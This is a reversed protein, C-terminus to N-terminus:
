KGDAAQVVVNSSDKGCGWGQGLGGEKGRGSKDRRGCAQAVNAEWVGMMTSQVRPPMTEM